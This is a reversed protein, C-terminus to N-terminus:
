PGGGRDSLRACRPDRGPELWSELGARTRPGIGRVRELDDLRCFPVREREAVIAAALAPGVRPLVELAAADARALDIRGGFLLPLAGDLERGGAGDLERGGAGDCAVAPSAGARAHSDLVRPAPCAEARAAADPSPGGFPWAAVLVLFATVLWAAGFLDSSPGM